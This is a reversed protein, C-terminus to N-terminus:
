LGDKRKLHRQLMRYRLPTLEARPHNTMRKWYAFVREALPDSKAEAEVDAELRAYRARWARLERDQGALQVHLVEIEETLAQEVTISPVAQLAREASMSAGQGQHNADRRSQEGPERSISKM